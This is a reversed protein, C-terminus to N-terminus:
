PADGGGRRRALDFCVVAAATAVNLSEIGERMPISVRRDACQLQAETLGEGEPGLLLAWTRDAQLATYPEDGRPTLAAVAVRAAHLDAIAAALVGGHRFPLRFLTGAATRITRPNYPNATGTLGWLGDAGAAAAVRIVAGVNTPDQVGQLLLFLGRPRDLPLVPNETPVELFGMVGPPAKLLSLSAYLRTALIRPRIGRGAAWDLFARGAPQEAFAQSCLVTRCVAGAALAERLARAGEVPFLGSKSVAARSRKFARAQKVLPHQPSTITM